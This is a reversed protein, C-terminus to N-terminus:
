DGIHADYFSLFNNFLYNDLSNCWRERDLHARIYDARDNQFREANEEANVDYGLQDRWKDFEANFEDIYTRDNFIYNHGRDSMRNFIFRPNMEYKKFFVDYGYRIPVVEDDESHVIM